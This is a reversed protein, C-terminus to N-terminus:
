FKNSKNKIRVLSIKLHERMLNGALEDDKKELAELIQRHGELTFSQDPVAQLSAKMTYHLLDAILSLIKTMASNHAAAGIAFHFATDGNIGSMGEQIEEEMQYLSKRIFAIDENTARVAALKAMEPELILRTEIIEDILSEDSSFYDAIPDLVRDLSYEKVFSGGGVQSEVLGMIELSRLAERVVTRSVGLQTAIEREPPLKSGPQYDGRLISRSIQDIVESSLRNKKVPQLM